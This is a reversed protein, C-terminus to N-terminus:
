VSTCPDRSVVQAEPQDVTKFHSEYQQEEAPDIDARPSITARSIRHVRVAILAVVSVDLAISLLQYAM